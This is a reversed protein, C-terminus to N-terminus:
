IGWMGVYVLLLAINSFPHQYTQTQMSEQGEPSISEPSKIKIFLPLRQEPNESYVSLLPLKAYPFTTFAAMYIRTLSTPGSSECM